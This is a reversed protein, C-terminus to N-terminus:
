GAVGNPGFAEDLDQELEAKKERVREMAANAKDIFRRKVPDPGQLSPVLALRRQLEAKHDDLVAFVMQKMAQLTRDGVRPSEEAIDSARRSIVSARLM